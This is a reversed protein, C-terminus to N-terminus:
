DANHMATVYDVEEKSGLVVAVRQHLGEPQIDLINQRTNTAAGQAQEVLLSMPNAEYMLRLKGPKDPNRNDQPYTFIGGRILIRHVEAVMSAVWRMNYDKGRCGSKGALLQAIYNQMAPQWHRQNSMNIAFEATSVPIQPNEQTLQFQNHENLTFMAIGHKLTLVLITQPGYLVYGSALQQRGSQLFSETTLAGDPKALVSFITGISINVDINSSGDLPDFLVLFQGNQSATVFSDEEESALGAIAPNASLTDIMIQNSLVDLKKQEEGQINGTHASGLINDLAGLRIERNIHLCAQSISTIVDPLHPTVAYKQQQQQLYDSLLVSM